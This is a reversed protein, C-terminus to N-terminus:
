VRRFRMHVHMFSSIARQDSWFSVLGFRYRQEIWIILKELKCKGATNNVCTCYIWRFWLAYQWDMFPEPAPMHSKSIFVVFM